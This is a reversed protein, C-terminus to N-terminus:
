KALMLDIMGALRDLPERSRSTKAFILAGEIAAFILLARDDAEQESFGDQVLWGKLEARLSALAQNCVQAINDQYPAMELVVTAIPCADAFGTKEVLKAIAKLYNKLAKEPEDNRHFKLFELTQRGSYQIAECVLQDKGKPFHFYLSGKPAGSENVIQNVGTGHFGQRQMLKAATKIMKLRSSVKAM